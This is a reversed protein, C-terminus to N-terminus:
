KREAIQKVKNVYTPDQAYNISELFRYYSSDSKYKSQIYNKYAIVSESWHEFEYYRGNKSDYLGFLNNGNLCLDSKFHGTELVAQAYVIQPHKIDYYELAEMLGEQPLRNFFDPQIEKNNIHLVVKIEPPNDGKSCSHVQIAGLVGVVLSILVNFVKQKM